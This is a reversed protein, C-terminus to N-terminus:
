RIGTNIFRSVHLMYREYVESTFSTMVVGWTVHEM